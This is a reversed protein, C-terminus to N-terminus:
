DISGHLGQETVGVYHWTDGNTNSAVAHWACLAQRKLAAPDGGLDLYMADCRKFGCGRFRMLLYPNAKLVKASANGWVKVVNKALSKPFGRGDLLEILDITCDELAKQRELWEAAEVAHEDSLKTSAAAAVDPQERLIRVAQ